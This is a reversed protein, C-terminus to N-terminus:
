YGEEISFLISWINYRKHIVEVPTEGLNSFLSCFLSSVFGVDRKLNVVCSSSFDGWPLENPYVTTHFVLPLNQSERKETEKLM